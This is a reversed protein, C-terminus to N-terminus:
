RIEAALFLFAIGGFFVILVSLWTMAPLGPMKGKLRYIHYPLFVRLWLLLCLTGFCGFFVGDETMHLPNILAFLLAALFFCFFPLLPNRILTHPTKTGCYKCVTKAGMESIGDYAILRGCKECPLQQRADKM